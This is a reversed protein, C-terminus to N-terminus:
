STSASNQAEASGPPGWTYSDAEPMYKQDGNLFSLLITNSYPSAAWLEQETACNLEPRFGVFASDGFRIVGVPIDVDTADKKNQTTFSGQTIAIKRSTATRSLDEAIGIADNGMITGLEQVWELGKQVGEDVWVAGGAGDSALPNWKQYWCWKKPVQDGAAPMGFLAPAGFEEEMVRCALGPVDSSIQRTMAAMESNDICTPKIGYSVFFGIPDGSLSDLRLVTMTKNSPMTSGLGIYWKGDPFLVDRNM